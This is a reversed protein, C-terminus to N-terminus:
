QTEGRVKRAEIKSKREKDDRQRLILAGSLVISTAVGFTGLTAKLPRDEETENVQPNSHDMGPMDPAMEEEAHSDTAEDAHSDTAGETSSHDMGPMNPDMAEESHLKGDALGKSTQLSNQPSHTGASQSLQFSLGALVILGLIAAAAFM